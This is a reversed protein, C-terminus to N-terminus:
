MCIYVQSRQAGLPKVLPSGTVYMCVENSNMANNRQAGGRAVWNEATRAGVPLSGHWNKENWWMMETPVGRPSETNQETSSKTRRQADKQTERPRETRRQAERLSEPSRQAERPSEPGWQAKAPREPGGQAERVFVFCNMVLMCIYLQLGLKGHPGFYVIHGRCSSGRHGELGSIALCFSWVIGSLQLGLTGGPRFNGSLLVLCYMGPLQLGLTKRPKRPRLWGALWGRLRGALRM